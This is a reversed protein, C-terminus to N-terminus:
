GKPKLNVSKEEEKGWYLWGEKKSDLDRVRVWITDSFITTINRKELIILQDDKDMEFTPKGPGSVLLVGKSPPTERLKIDNLAVYVTKSDETSVKQSFATACITLLLFLLFCTSWLKKAM